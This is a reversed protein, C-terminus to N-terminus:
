QHRPDHGAGAAGGQEDHEPHHEAHGHHGGPEEGLVGVPGEVLGSRAALMRNLRVGAVAGVTAGLTNLIVDTIDAARGVAALYQGTEVLTSLVLATLATTIIPRRRALLPLLLGLPVFLLANTAASPLTDSSGAM